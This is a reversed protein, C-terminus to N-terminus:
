CSKTKPLVISPVLMLHPGGNKTKYAVWAVMPISRVRAAKVVSSVLVMRVLTLTLAVRMILHRRAIPHQLKRLFLGTLASVAALHGLQVLKPM